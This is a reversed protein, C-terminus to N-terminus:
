FFYWVPNNNNSNKNQKTKTKPNDSTYMCSLSRSNLETRVPDSAVVQRTTTCYCCSSYSVALVYMYIYLCFLFTLYSNLYGCWKKKWFFSFSLFLAASQSQVVKWRSLAAWCTRASVPFVKATLWKRSVPEAADALLTEGDKKVQKQALTANFSVKVMKASVCSASRDSVRVCPQCPSFAEPCLNASEGLVGETTTIVLLTSTVSGTKNWM